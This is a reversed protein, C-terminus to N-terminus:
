CKSYNIHPLLYIMQHKIHKVQKGTYMIVANLM